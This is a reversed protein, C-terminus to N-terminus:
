ILTKKKLYGSELYQSIVTGKSINADSKDPTNSADLFSNPSIIGGLESSRRKSGYLPSELEEDSMLQAINEKLRRRKRTKSGSMSTSPTFHNNYM